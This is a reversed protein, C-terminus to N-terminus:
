ETHESYKDSNEKKEVSLDSSPQTSEKPLISKQTSGSTSPQLLAIPTNVAFSQQKGKEKISSSLSGPKAPPILSHVFTAQQKEEVCLSQDHFFEVDEASLFRPKGIQKGIQKNM